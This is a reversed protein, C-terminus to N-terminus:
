APSEPRSRAALARLDGGVRRTLDRLQLLEDVIEFLQDRDINIAQGRHLMAASRQLSVLDGDPMPM